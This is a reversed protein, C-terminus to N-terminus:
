IIQADVADTQKPILIARVVEEKPLEKRMREQLKRPFSGPIDVRLHLQVGETKLLAKCNSQFWEPPALGKRGGAIWKAWLSENPYQSMYYQSILLELGSGENLLNDTFIMDFQDIQNLRAMLPTASSKFLDGVDGEMVQTQPQGNEALLGSHAVLIKFKDYEVGCATAGYFSLIESLSGIDDGLVLIRKGQLASRIDSGPDNRDLHGGKFVSAIYYLQHSQEEKDKLQEFKSFDSTTGRKSLETEVVALADPDNRYFQRINTQFNQTSQDRFYGSRPFDRRILERIKLLRQWNPDTPDDPELCIYKNKEYDGFFPLAIEVLNVKPHHESELSPEYNKPGEPMIKFNNEYRLPSFEM